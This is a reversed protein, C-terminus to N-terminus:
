PMQRARMDSEMPSAGVRTERMVMTAAWPVLDRGRRVVWPVGKTMLWAVDTATSPVVVGDREVSPMQVVPWGAASLTRAYGYALRRHGSESPHLRDISWTERQWVWPQQDLDIRIGGFREYAEDYVANLRRIRRWLPRALFGPLGFVRSHDHMRVTLPTAGAAALSGVTVLIHDRMAVIDFDSRMTDNMGVIVSALDPRLRLAQSLQRHRVDAARAGSVALNTYGTDPGFAEALLAAFGRWGGDPRPDGM